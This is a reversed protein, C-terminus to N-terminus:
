CALVALVKLRPSGDSRSGTLSRRRLTMWNPPKSASTRGAISLGATRVSDSTGTLLPHWNPLPKGEALRRYACTRPMWSLEAHRMQRVDLCDEVIELRQAYRGCRGSEPDLLRCAVRTYFVDGTDDNVLKHLCCQGCGDCLSEWELDSMEDLSKSEWFPVDAM